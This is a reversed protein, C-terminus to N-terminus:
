NLTQKNIIDTQFDVRNPVHIPRTNSKLDLEGNEKWLSFLGSHLVAIGTFEQALNLLRLLVGM